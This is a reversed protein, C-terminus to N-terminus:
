DNRGNNVKGAFGLASAVSAFMDKPSQMKLKAKPQKPKSFRPPMFDLVDANNPKGGSKMIEIDVLQKIWYTLQATQHWQEGIPEVADFAEWQRL